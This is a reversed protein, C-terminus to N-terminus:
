NLLSVMRETLEICSLRHRFNKLSNKESALTTAITNSKKQKKVRSQLVAQKVKEGGRVLGVLKPNYNLHLSVWLNRNPIM